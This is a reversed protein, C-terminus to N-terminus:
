PKMPPPPAPRRSPVHGPKAGPKGKRKPAAPKTYVPRQGSPTNPDIKPPGEVKAKLEAIRAKQEAIRKAAALIVLKVLADDLAAIEEAQEDTLKGDLAAAVLTAVRADTRIREDM